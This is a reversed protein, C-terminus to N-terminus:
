ADVPVIDVGRLWTEFGGMEYGATPHPEADIRLFWHQEREVWELLTGHRVTRGDGSRLAFRDGPRIDCAAVPIDIYGTM